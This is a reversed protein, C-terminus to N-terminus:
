AAIKNEAREKRVDEVTRGTRGGNQLWDLLHQGSHLVRAGVRYAGLHGNDYARFPTQWAVGVLEAAEYRDYNTMPDIPPRAKVAKKRATKKRIKVKQM